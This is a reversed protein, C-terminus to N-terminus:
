RTLPRVVGEQMTSATLRGVRDFINGRCLSRGHGSWTGEMDHLFWQDARAEEHFWVTHDLTAFMLAGDTFSRAHPGLGTSLLLLDALYTFAAAHVLADDPLPDSARLWLSQQPDTPQGNRVRARVPPQPFRLDVAQRDRLWTVWDLMDDDGLFFEEPDLVSEVPASALRPVQHSLPSADGVHFSATLLLIVEGQQIAEVQRTTYSGGDRTDDVKYTIEADARGPRLFHAHASHIPRAPPVTRGAALVAQGSVEGGFARIPMATRLRGRFLLPELQEVTLIDTLPSAPPPTV